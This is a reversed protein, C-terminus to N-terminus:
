VVSKRDALTGATGSSGLGAAAVNASKSVFCDNDAFIIPGVLDFAGVVKFTSVAACDDGGSTLRNGIALIRGRTGYWHLCDSNDGSVDDPEAGDVSGYSNDVTVNRCVSNLGGEWTIGLIPSRIATINEIISDDCDALVIIRCGNFGNAPSVGERAATVVSGGNVTGSGTLTFRDCGVFWLFALGTANDNDWPATADDIATARITGEVRMTTDHADDLRCGTSFYFVSGDSVKPVLIEVGGGVAEVDARLAAWAADNATALSTSSAPSPQMGYARINLPASSRISSTTVEWPLGNVTFQQDSAVTSGLTARWTKALAVTKFSLGTYKFRASTGIGVVHVRANVATDQYETGEAIESLDLSNLKLTTKNGGFRSKVKYSVGDKQHVVYDTSEPNFSEPLEDVSYIKSSLTIVKPM